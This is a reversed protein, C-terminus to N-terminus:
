VRTPFHCIEVCHMLFLQSALFPAGRSDVEHQLLDLGTILPLTWEFALRVQVAAVWHLIVLLAYLAHSAAQMMGSQMMGSQMMGSQM